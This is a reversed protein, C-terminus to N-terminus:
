NILEMAWRLVEQKFLASSVNGCQMSHMRIKLFPKIKGKQFMPPLWQGIRSISPCCPQQAMHTVKTVFPGNLGNASLKWLNWKWSFADDTSGSKRKVVQSLSYPRGRAHGMVYGNSPNVPYLQNKKLVKPFLRLFNSVTKKRSREHLFICYHVMVCMLHLSNQLYHCCTSCSSSPKTVFCGHISIEAIGHTAAYRELWSWLNVAAKLWAPRHQPLRQPPSTKASLYLPEFISQVLWGVTDVYLLVNLYMLNYLM